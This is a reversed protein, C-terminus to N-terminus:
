RRCANFYCPFSDANYTTFWDTRKWLFEIVLIFQEIIICAECIVRQGWLMYHAYLLVYTISDGCCTTLMYCYM